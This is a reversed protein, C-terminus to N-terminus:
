SWVTLLGVVLLAAITSIINWLLFKTFFSWGKQAHNDFDIHEAAETSPEAHAVSHTAM